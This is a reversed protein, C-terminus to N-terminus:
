PWQGRHRWSTPPQRAPSPLAWAAARVGTTHRPPRTLTTLALVLAALEDDGPRGSEVALVAPGGSM